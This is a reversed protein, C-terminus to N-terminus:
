AKGADAGPRPAPLDPGAVASSVSFRPVPDEGYDVRFGAQVSLGEFDTATLAVPVSGASGAPPRITFTQNHRDFRIWPVLPTGDAAQADYRLTDGPDPDMFAEDPVSFVLVQGAPVYVDPLPTNIVPPMNELQHRIEDRHYRGIASGLFFLLLALGLNIGIIWGIELGLLQAIVLILLAQLLDGFRVFFTDITTKGVYKEERSVPLYLTHNTTNQISYNATMEVIMMLRVLAFVPIFLILGYNLVMIAPLVLIAGRVGFWRFIRSVLFLQVLIQLATITAYFDGYFRSIVAGTSLADVSAAAVAAAHETLFSALIYTGNTNVLNLLMVFLAIRLLYGSRAVTVFGGLVQAIVNKAPPQSHEAHSARSGDPVLREALRSLLVVLALMAASLLMLNTVGIIPYLRGAVQSGTLAGLAAGVMIVAFLRQGTKINYLDAAFAWFQAVVMVNYVGVWIFFPVAIPIGLWVLFAFILLNSVFFSGIWRLVASKNGGNKLYDFLLKYIPIVFILTVAIAGNAYSRVEPSGEVLILTERVLRILYYGHLLLFIQALMVAISRGEGPRVSTFLSLLREFVTLRSFTNGAMLM